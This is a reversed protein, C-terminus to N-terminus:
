PLASAISFDSAGLKKYLAEDDDEKCPKRM